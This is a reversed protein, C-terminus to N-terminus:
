PVQVFFAAHGHPSTEERDSCDEHLHFRITWKGPADFRIPGSKYTGPPDEVVPPDASPSPHTDNLFVESVIKAGTAPQDDVTTKAVVTFFVDTNQHIPTATWSISYKCDDDLGSANNMTEGYDSGGGGADTVAAADPHCSAPDTEAKTTGGDVICHTDAAGTVPGGAPGADGGGDSTGVSGSSSSGGSSSTSTGAGGEPVSTIAPGNNTNDSTCAVILAIAAGVSM